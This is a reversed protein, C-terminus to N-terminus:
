APARRADHWVRVLDEAVLVTGAALLPLAPLAYRFIFESTATAGVVLLGGASLLALAPAARALGLRRRWLVGALAVLLAVPALALLPRPVQVVQAYTGLPGAPARRSPEFGPMLRDRVGFDTPPMPAPERELATVGADEGPDAYRLVDRGVMRAYTVPRDRIIAWAYAGLTDDAALGSTTPGGFIRHAPSLLGGWLYTRAGGEVPQELFPCMPRAEPPIDADGCRGIEGVRAYLFWGSMETMAFGHGREAHWTMYAVPLVAVAVLAVVSVRWGPRVALVYALLPPVAFLAATRMSIAVGLLLGALAVARASRPWAVLLAAAIVVASGAAADSLVWHEMTLLHSDLLLVAAV